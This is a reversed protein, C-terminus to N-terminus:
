RVNQASILRPLKSTPRPTVIVFGERGMSTVRQSTEQPEINRYAMLKHFCAKLLKANSMERPEARVPILEVLLIPRKGWSRNLGRSQSGATM